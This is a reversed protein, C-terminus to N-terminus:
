KIEKLKISLEDLKEILIDSATVLMEKCSLQGWSEVYFIFDNESEIVNISKDANMCNQCLHCDFLRKDNILLKDGKLEFVGVPCSKVVAEPDKVSKGIEIVPKYKYFVLGPTWKAHDKGQGLCATAELEIKQGKLLKVIPIELFVPKIKPDKSKIESSYAIDNNSKLTMKLQCRACGVGKCKCKAPLNYSKLDTTLPILGLRLAIIEDYLISSNERFEVDEIAMTPVEELIIRRIANAFHPTSKSLLFSVKNNKSDSTLQKIEM